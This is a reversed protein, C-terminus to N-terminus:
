GAGGGDKKVGFWRGRKRYSYHGGNGLQRLRDVLPTSTLYNRIDTEIHDDYFVPFKLTYTRRIFMACKIWEAVIEKDTLM